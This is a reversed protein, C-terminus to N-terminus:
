VAERLIGERALTRVPKPEFVSPWPLLRGCDTIVEWVDPQERALREFLLTLDCYCPQRWGHYPVQPGLPEFHLGLRAVLRLLAPEMIACVTEIGHAIGMQLAVTMLGLTIHATLRRPDSALGEDLRGFNGDGIRRLFTKSIAFRSLEFTSELPFVDQDHIRPDACVKHIPLCGCTAGPLHLVLRVTGVILGSLRHLLVGQVAHDDYEDRELEDANKAPDEYDHEVCYVQYRLAHAGKELAPTDAPRAEFMPFHM